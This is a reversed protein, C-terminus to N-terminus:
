VDRSCGSISRRHKAARTFQKNVKVIVVVQEKGMASTSHRWKHHCFTLCGEHAYPLDNMVICPNNEFPFFNSEFSWGKISLRKITIPNYENGNSHALLKCLTKRTFVCILLHSLEFHKWNHFKVISARQEISIKHILCARKVILPNPKILFIKVNSHLM